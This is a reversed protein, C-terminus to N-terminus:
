CPTFVLLKKLVKNITCSSWNTLSNVKFDFDLRKGYVSNLWDNSVFNIKLYLIVTFNIYILMNNNNLDLETPYISLSNNEFNDCNFVIIDHICRFFNVNNKIM